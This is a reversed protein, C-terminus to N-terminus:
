PWSRASGRRPGPRSHARPRWGTDRLGPAFAGRWGIEASSRARTIKNYNAVITVGPHLRANSCRRLLGRWPRGDGVVPRLLTGFRRAIATIAILRPRVPSALLRQRAIAAESVRLGLGPADTVLVHGDAHPVNEGLVDETLGRHPMSFACGLSIGPNSAILQAQARLLGPRIRWDRAGNRRSEGADPGAPRHYRSAPRTTAASCRRPKPRCPINFIPQCVRASASM